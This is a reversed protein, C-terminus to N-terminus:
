IGEFCRLVRIVLSLNGRPAYWDKQGVCVYMPLCCTACNVHASAPMNMDLIGDKPWTMSVIISFIIHPALVLHHHYTHRYFVIVSLPDPRLIITYWFNVAARLPLFHFWKRLVFAWISHWSLFLRLFYVVNLPHLISIGKSVCVCECACMAPTSM